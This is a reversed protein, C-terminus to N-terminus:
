NGHFTISAYGLGVQQLAQTAKEDAQSQYTLELPLSVNERATLHSMLHLQQFVIGIHQTRTRKEWQKWLNIKYYSPGSTLRFLWFLANM